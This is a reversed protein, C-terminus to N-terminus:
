KTANWPVDAQLLNGDQGYISLLGSLQSGNESRTGRYVWTTTNSGDHFRAKFAIDRNTQTVVIPYGSLSGSTMSGDQKVISLREPPLGLDIDIVLLWNDTPQISRRRQTPLTTPKAITEDAHMESLLLDIREDMSALLISKHIPPIDAFLADRQAKCADNIAGRKDAAPADRAIIQRVCRQYDAARSPEAKSTVLGADATRQDVSQQASGATAYLLCCIMGAYLYAAKGARDTQSDQM